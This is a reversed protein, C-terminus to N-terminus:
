VVAATRRHEKSLQDQYDGLAMLQQGPAYAAQQLQPMM